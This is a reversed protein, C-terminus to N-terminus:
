SASPAAYDFFQCNAILRGVARVYQPSVLSNPDCVFLDVYAQALPSANYAAGYQDTVSLYQAQSLGFVEHLPITEMLTVSETGYNTLPVCRFNPRSMYDGITKGTPDDNNTTDTHISYGVFMGSTTPDNFTIELKLSKVIYKTYVATLQDYQYYQNGIGTIDPDYLSNLSFRYKTGTPISGVTGIAVNVGYVM